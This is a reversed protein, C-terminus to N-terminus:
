PRLEVAPVGADFGFVRAYLSLEAELAARITEARRFGHQEGQFELYAHPVEGVRELLRRAQVPPCIEDEDGQMLLFPASIGEARNVPSREEYRARAQPWPGILSELYQSEFDHTEGTRWGVLDVIPYQIVGCAFVDSFALAAATTWGGASGGRIALRDPDATGEEALARAVAVADEVDVVGWEGRLRERYARGFGTSGGYNVQVVGIGRSTFYAIEADLVSVARGTPGGHVWVAYPPREVDAAQAEPNRPRYVTAHVERGGPGEFVREEPRPVYAPPVEPGGSTRSLARWSRDAVSVAIVEPPLEPSAAVAIVTEGARGAAVLRPSWETHPTDVDDLAGSDPCLIALRTSATGHVAAILGSQLPLIWRPGLQWLPGGFEETLPALAVPARATGDPELTLQYPNWWGSADSVLFLTNEDGWEAQVVSEGPGGAVDHPSAATGDGDVAAVTLFTSDWPMDPHDWGIWSVRRGDPSLRPCALFRRGSAVVRVAGPDEAASGDLPVAVVAREVDTPAPGTHEERICWVEGERGAVPEVYRLASPTGPAPTLPVPGTREGPRYLYLRQDSFETFVVATAGGAELPLYPRGGYEHVRSRANWPAPLVEKPGEDPEDLRARCLTVRGQELPRPETWWVEDGLAAPWGPAGDARAVSKADIPSPWAGYPLIPMATM